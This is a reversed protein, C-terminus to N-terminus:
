INEFLNIKGFPNLSNQLNELILIDYPTESLQFEYDKNFYPILNIPYAVIHFSKDYCDDINSKDFCYFGKQAKDVFDEIYLQKHYVSKFQILEDLNPNLAFEFKRTIQLFTEANKNFVNDFEMINEPLIGGATAVHIGLGPIPLSIYLDLDSSLQELVSFAM